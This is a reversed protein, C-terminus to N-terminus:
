KQSTINKLISVSISEAIIIGFTTGDERFAAKSVLGNSNNLNKYDTLLLDAADALEDIATQVNNSTIISPILDKNYYIQEAKHSNNESSTVGSFNIHSTIISGLVDNVSKLSDTGSFSETSSGNTAPFSIASAPHRNIAYPSVHSSYLASLERIQSVMTDILRSIESVESQLISTPINLKLKSEDIAADKAVNDNTIQGYLVNVRDLAEKLLNGSQDLSQSIRSGVSNGIAGQPNIGLVKEIQIIASRLSNIVEPGIDDLNGRIIPLESSTDIQNPYKSNPM